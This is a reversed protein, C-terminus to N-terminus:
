SFWPWYFGFLMPFVNAKGDKSFFGTPKKFM